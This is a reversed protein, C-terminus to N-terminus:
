LSYDPLKDNDKQTDQVSSRQHQHEEHDGTVEKICSIQQWRSRFLKIQKVKSNGTNSSNGSPEYRHLKPM